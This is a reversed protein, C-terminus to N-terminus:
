EVSRRVGWMEGKWMEGLVKGFVWVEGGVEGVGWCVKECREWCKGGGRM